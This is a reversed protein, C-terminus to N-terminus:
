EIYKLVKYVRLRVMGIVQHVLLRRSVDSM